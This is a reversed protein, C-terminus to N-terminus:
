AHITNFLQSFSTKTNIEIPLHLKRAVDSSSIVGRINHGQRDLVLCHSLGYNQLVNVVDKVTSRKISEHDFAQLADKPLMMDRVLLEERSNGKAVQTIINQESLEKTSIIGRFDNCGSVVIKMQVHAKAMLKLADIALTDAEIVLPNVYKFDTFIKNAPSDLTVKEYNEPYVINDVSELNYLQLDKM